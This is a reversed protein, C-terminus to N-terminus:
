WIVRSNKTKCLSEFTQGHILLGRNEELWKNLEPSDFTRKSLPADVLQKRFSDQLSAVGNYLWVNKEVRGVTPHRPHKLLCPGKALCHSIARAMETCTRSKRNFHFGPFRYREAPPRPYTNVIPQVLSEQVDNNSKSHGYVSSLGDVHEFILCEVLICTSGWNSASPIFIANGAATFKWEPDNSFHMSPKLDLTSGTSPGLRSADMWFRGTAVLLLCM